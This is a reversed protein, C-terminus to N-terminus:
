IILNQTFDRWLLEGRFKEGGEGELAALAHWVSAPSIEGWHLHPSLQSSGTQSPLNRATAYQAAREAFRGVARQAADEGVADKWFARFGGAWDPKTPLLQWAALADGPPVSAPAELRDPAPLPDPPPMKALAARAFPAYIRYPRGSGSLVSDPPLLFNGHHLDLEVGFPLAAALDAEAKLWWPEYHRIAHVGTAGTEAVLDLLVQVSDGRRLVLPAGLRAYSEGLRDLSHHLWWRHAGGYRFAGPREDDLVFVPVVPGLSAAHHLAPQDALRLDRRLWVIQTSSM